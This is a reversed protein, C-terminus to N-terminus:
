EAKLEAGCCRCKAVPPKPGVAKPARRLLAVANLTALMPSVNPYTFDLRANLLGRAGNCWAMLGQGAHAFAREVLRRELERMASLATGGSSIGLLLGNEPCVGVAALAGIPAVVGIHDVGVGGLLGAALVTEAIRAMGIADDPYGRILTLEGAKLLDYLWPEHAGRRALLAPHVWAHSWHLWRGTGREEGIVAVSALDDAGGCDIGIVIVGSVDLLRNFTIRQDAAGVWESGAGWKDDAM